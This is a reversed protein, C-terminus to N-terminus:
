LKTTFQLVVTRGFAANLAWLLGTSLANKNKHSFKYAACYIIHSTTYKLDFFM